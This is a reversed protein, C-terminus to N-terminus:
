KPVILEMRTNLETIKNFINSWAKEFFKKVLKTRSRYKKKVKDNEKKKKKLFTILTNSSQNRKRKIPHISLHYLKPTRRKKKKLSEPHSYLGSM